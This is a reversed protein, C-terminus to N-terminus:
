SLNRSFFANKKIDSLTNIRRWSRRGPVRAEVQGRRIRWQIHDSSIRFCVAVFAHHRDIATSSKIKLMKGNKIVIRFALSKIADSPHLMKKLSPKAREPGPIAVAKLPRTLPTTLPILPPM